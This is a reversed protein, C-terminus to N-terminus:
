WGVWASRPSSRPGKAQGVGPRRELEEPRAVALGALSGYEALLAAALDLASEGRSGNRLVLALLERESLAEAGRALLRERPREHVPVDVVLVPM